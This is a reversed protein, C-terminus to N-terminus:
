ADGAGAVSHSRRLAIAAAVMNELSAMTESWGRTKLGCDPNVWLREKSIFCLAKELLAEIEVKPPVRPSHIDYIGPGIENPYSFDRFVELLEMRSRSAEISIVDADMSAIADMIENFESYCMHTHIQTANSVGSSALRFADVAWDLYIARDKKKLPMGESLAAEDIQIIGIGAAELDRVEDGVALAIQRAVEPRAIDDRVFSWCLMTVPGTLMGKVPKRTLSQAFEIWEVTMPKRRSVDGFIVPPKVCRSGYSQVWGNSTFCFGDMQQGFYEVMDNREPEGHVLVDLGLREQKEIVERIVDKLFVEYEKVSLEGDLFQRRKRRIDPTQPFSGITTTPFLPLGLWQQAKKREAYGAHRRKMKETVLACREIVEPNTVRTSSRRSHMAERNEDMAECCDWGELIEALVDVEECKQVAFAMWSKLEPDLSKECELDVPVHMLSCNAAIMFREKGLKKGIKALVDLAQRFDTRWINRGDVIGASLTMTEPIQDLIRDLIHPGRVFDAHLGRCGSALALDLNEDLAEFYTALLLGADGSARNLRRYVDIFVEKAEPFMDTNLVPEDVQIWNCLGDLRSLVECYVDIVGDLKEWRNYGDPAKALSLWTVPGVLVPKPHYGAKLAERTDEIIKLTSLSPKFSSTIEPVIYHYNTDFWKTMEMAPINLSADGRAMRFYTDLGIGGTAEGFREPLAGLMASVDLVHDYFSFDGTAVFTMGASEQISWHRLKLMRGTAELADRTSSGRWYADLAKKLERRVGIRPFGPIHKNIM